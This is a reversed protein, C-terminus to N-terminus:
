GGSRFDLAHCKSKSINKSNELDKQGFTKIKAVKNQTAGM